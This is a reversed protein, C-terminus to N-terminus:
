HDENKPFSFGINTFTTGRITISALNGNFIAGETLWDARGEFQSTDGVTEGTAPNAIADLVVTRTQGGVKAVISLSKSTSRVFDEMEDDLVYGTLVSTGGEHVIEINYDDGIAVPTGGHPPVDKHMQPKDDSAASSANKSCSTMLLGTFAIAFAIKLAKM